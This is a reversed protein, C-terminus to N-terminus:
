ANAQSSTFYQFSGALSDVALANAFELMDM